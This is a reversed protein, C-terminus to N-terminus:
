STMTVCIWRKWVYGIPTKRRSNICPPTPQIDRVTGIVNWGHRLFEAAMAHGLGRSAGVILVTPRVITTM